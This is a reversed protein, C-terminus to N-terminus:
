FVHVYTTKIDTGLINKATCKYYGTDKKSSHQIVLTGQPHLFKNGYLRSQSVATLISKDPLEWTIDPKPIGISMCTLQVSSGPRVYTVPAPSTTIRPPYAIVIVPVTMTSSGYQTTAKCIYSGRDYVSTNRVVLTGNQLLSIRGKTHSGELSMGNPMTWSIQPQTEGHTSCHLQLTEGNIISILNNNNNKLQPKQGIQVTFLKDAYGAINTARCIYTGADTVAMSGILLTGDNRHFLRHLFNGRRVETGNPLIWIREPEPIGSSSCNLGVSQGEGVVINENDSNFKPKETPDIVTLHVLLRSEGGENRGICTLQVSDTKRVAKIDLTGNRHVSIRNGYYPAPLIVGEPFAWMVRPAPIGEAKCNLLLRSDKVATEKITTIKNSFGNIQPPLVNVQIQVVKKDEGGTNHATCTYNGSDSRQVKQILLSGDRYVQYKDSSTPIPRNSPSLWTIKPLPEGKAECSVTVVDGYPVQIVFYTKNKIIAKEAVVKVSVRMEDQGIQNSAYCTYDGEEKMGVENFYLTGNNFVVYRRKRSGSDDSQMVNNIMSGDPLSWSIEPNPVGTAVCDVKLDGGYRVKHDAENKHQIKAAKMMVNVKLVLYDEGLKNRAMCLYDGADKETVSYIILTGNAYTKIRSDFSFFSDVLRKSPLRWLIRPWPDGAASCDLRLTGGYTVDTKQPSSITIKANASYRKVDLVIIRRATGVINAAVCEYKGIDRQSLSRIYLTGNPFVFLNGNVFQSPRVQTGDNIVWRISPLPAGKASCHIYLSHGQPLTINEEKEQKFIPPLAAIHLRVTLSDAGAVNSAICKFVGRDSFTSEKISITGNEYLMIRGESASITRIIKRDPFIWSIHPSPVGSAQCDITVTDGIYVTADRYRSHLIRPQQVVVSLTVFMKDTGHLNQATCVYQGHDQLQLKQIHLTGNELVEFRQIKSNRSLVAGTAIKTWTISPKPDGVSECPIFMDMEFTGSLTQLGISTIQPKKLSVTEPPQIENTNKLKSGDLISPGHNIYPTYKNIPITTSSQPNYIPVIHLPTAPYFNKTPPTQKQTPPGIVPVEALPAVTARLVSRPTTKVATIDYNINNGGGPVLIPPRPTSNHIMLRTRNVLYHISPNMYYPNGQYPTRGFIDKGNNSLNNGIPRYYPPIRQAQNSRMPTMPKPRFLPIFTTTTTIPTTSMRQSPHTKREPAAFATIEPKNTIVISPNTVFYRLPGQTGIYPPRKTGQIPNYRAPSNKNHIVRSQHPLKTNDLLSNNSIVGYTDKPLEPKQPILIKNQTYSLHDLDNQRYFPTTTETIKSKAATRSIVTEHFKTRPSLTTHGSALYLQTNPVSANVTFPSRYTNEAVVLPLDTGLFPRRISERNRSYDHITRGVIKSSATGVIKQEGNKSLSGQTIEPKKTGPLLSNQLSVAPPQSYDLYRFNNRTTTTLVTAKAPEHLPYFETATQYEAPPVVTNASSSTTYLSHQTLKINAYMTEANRSPSTTVRNNEMANIPKASHISYPFKHVVHTFAHDKITTDDGAVKTTKITESTSMSSILPMEFPKTTPASTSSQFYHLVVKQTAKASNTQFQTPRIPLLPEKTVEMDYSSSVLPKQLFSNVQLQAEGSVTPVMQNQHMKLRNPRFRRRGNPRRRNHHINGNTSHNKNQEQNNFYKTIVSAVTVHPILTDKKGVTSSIYKTSTTIDSSYERQISYLYPKSVYPKATSLSSGRTDTKIHQKVKHLSFLNIKIDPTNTTTKRAHDETFNIETVHKRSVDVNVPDPSKTSIDTNLSNQYLPPTSVTSKTEPLYKKNDVMTTAEGSVAPPINNIEKWPIYINGNNEINGDLPSEDPLYIESNQLTVPEELTLTSPTMTVTFSTTCDINHETNATLMEASSNEVDTELNNEHMTSERTSSQATAHEEVTVNEIIFEKEITQFETSGTIEIDDVELDLNKDEDTLSDFNDTKSTSLIVWPASSEIHSTEENGASYDRTDANPLTPNIDIPFITAEYDGQVTTTQPPSTILILEDEDASTEEIYTQLESETPPRLVSDPKTIKHNYTPATTAEVSTLSPIDTTKQLNRGRIKALINAWQKPDIQKNGINIRRRSEFKRRGEAINNGKTRETSKWIKLKRRDKANEKLPINGSLSGKKSGPRARDKVKSYKESEDTTDREGSGGDDDIVDYRHKKLLESAPRKKMKVQYPKEPVKRGIALQVSFRDTGYQNAAICRYLGNDTLKTHAIALSGNNLLYIGTKNVSSDIIDNNPLIWNVDADPNGVIHCALVIPDGLTKTLTHIHNESVDSSPPQAIVRFLQMDIDHMVRAICYYAGSDAFDVAKITLQGSSSISFKSEQNSYPAKHISGDPFIWEILPIESSKVNCNLQCVTGKIATCSTKRKENRDIIVWNQSHQLEKTHLSQLFNTSFSLTVKKATSTKRNLQINIVSQMIWSPESSMLTKVGTYYYSDQDMNQKYRYIPTPHDNVMFEKELKVPVESYYAILKWLKEYNERTMPCEFALNFTANIDIEESHRQSWMIQSFDSPKKVDCDLDVKNGHEDTMNLKVKGLLNHHSEISPLENENEEETYVYTSNDRLTSYIVPRSCSIDKLSHIERKRLHKPASCVPCMQGNEYSRDKKCKLVGDSQKYWDLLWKMNCDCIWPNGHLYLNELLPMTQIMEAPLTQIMNDSLYLHKITSQRFFGLFSFTCFTNAHLQQILNGELHLLRLSTLGNFANPHIFEIKNHDIHLRTLDSLGHFTHSTITKLKNYSLKFVQLSVLDKFAANPISYIENSHILLLELKSLGAFTDEGISHISNFGLNIREVHKPIELPVATLSRFTCHVESSVYCACPHPCLLANHPLRLFLIIAPILWLRIGKHM